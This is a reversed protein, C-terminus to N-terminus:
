HSAFVSVADFVDFIYKLFSSIESFSNLNEQGVNIKVRADIKLHNESLPRQKNELRFIMTFLLNHFSGHLNWKTKEEEEDEGGVGRSQEEGM